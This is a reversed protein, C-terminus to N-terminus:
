PKREARAVQDNMEAQARHLWDLEQPSFEVSSHIYKEGPKGPVYDVGEIEGVHTMYKVAANFLAAMPHEPCQMVHAELQKAKSMATTGDNPGYRHGCYVCSIYMKAQLDDVHQRLRQIEGWFEQIAALIEVTKPVGAGDRLLDGHDDLSYRM